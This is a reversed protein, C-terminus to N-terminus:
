FLRRYSSFILVYESTIVSSLPYDGGIGIGQVVNSEGCSKHSFVTTYRVMFVRWFILVGASSISPSSSVLACSFTGFIIIALEVGYMRRRGLASPYKDADSCHLGLVTEGVRCAM